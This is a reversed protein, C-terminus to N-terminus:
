PRKERFKKGILEIKGNKGITSIGSDMDFTAHPSVIVLDNEDYYRGPRPSHGHIITNIGSNKVNEVDGGAPNLKKIKKILKDQLEFAHSRNGTNHENLIKIIESLYDGAIKNENKWEGINKEVLIKDMGIELRKYLNETLDTFQGQETFYSRNSTNLYARAIQKFDDDFNEGDFLMKHLNEQFIKNVELVRKKVNGGETLDAIMKTTPDTHCFLTDDHVVAVKMNCINELVMRGESSARMNSLIEPMKNYLKQWLDQAQQRFEKKISGSKILPEVKKLESEPDVDFRALEWNGVAQSTLTNMSKADLTDGFKGCLFGIFDIDHNGCLFDVQGGQQEAQKALNGINSTIEIGDMNRDGLIDGLFVLKKDEGTWRWKGSADKEAVGLAKVHKEFTRIDGDLDEIAMVETERKVEWWNKREPQPIHEILKMPSIPEPISIPAPAQEPEAWIKPLPPREFEVPAEPIHQVPESIPAEPTVEEQQPIVVPQSEEEPKKTITKKPIEPFGVLRIEEEIKEPEPKQQIKELFSFIADEIDSGTWSATNRTKNVYDIFSKKLGARDLIRYGLEVTTVGSREVEEVILEKSLNNAKLLIALRKVPSVEGVESNIKEVRPPLNNSLPNQESM